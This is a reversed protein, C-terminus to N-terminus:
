NARVRPTRAPAGNRILLEAAEVRGPHKGVRDKADAVGSAKHFWNNVADRWVIAQGGQYELQALVEEVARAGAMGNGVVVLKQKSM